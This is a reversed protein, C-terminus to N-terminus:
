FMHPCRFSLDAQFFPCHSLFNGQECQGDTSGSTTLLFALLQDFQAVACASGVRPQTCMRFTPKTTLNIWIDILYDISLGDSVM